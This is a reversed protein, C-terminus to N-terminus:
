LVPTKLKLSLIMKLYKDEGATQSRCGSGGEKEINGFEQMGVQGRWVKKRLKKAKERDRGVTLREM